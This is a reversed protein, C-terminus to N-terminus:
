LNGSSSTEKETMPLSWCKLLSFNRIQIWKSRKSSPHPLQEKKTLTGASQSTLTIVLPTVTVTMMVHNRKLFVGQSRSGTVQVVHFNRAQSSSTMFILCFKSGDLESPGLRSKSCLVSLACVCVRVSCVCLVSQSSSLWQLEASLCVYLSLVHSLLLGAIFTWDSCTM